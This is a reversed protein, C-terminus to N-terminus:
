DLIAPLYAKETLDAPNVCPSTMFSGIYTGWRGSSNGTNKSYQGVYWFTIGDPAITMGTYDGWRRGGFSTFPSDFATYPVEGSKLSAETMSGTSNSAVWTAPFSGSNSRTYGMAMEDCGNVALDGFVRYVGTSAFLGADLIAGTTPNVEIWRTCDV